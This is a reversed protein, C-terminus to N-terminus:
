LRSGWLVTKCSRKIKEMKFTNASTLLYVCVRMCAYTCVCMCARASTYAGVFM